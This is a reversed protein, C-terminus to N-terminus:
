NALFNDTRKSRTSSYADDSGYLRSSYLLVDIKRRTSNGLGRATFSRELISPYDCASGMHFIHESWGCLVLVNNQLRPDIRVRESHSQVARKLQFNSKKMHVINLDFKTPGEEWVHKGIKWLDLSSDAWIKRQKREKM